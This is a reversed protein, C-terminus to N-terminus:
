RHGLGPLGGGVVRPDPTRLARSTPTGSGPCRGGKAKHDRFAGHGNVQAPRLCVPCVKKIKTAM